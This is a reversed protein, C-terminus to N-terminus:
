RISFAVDAYGHARRMSFSFVRRMAEHDHLRIHLRKLVVPSGNLKAKFVKGYGGSAFCQSEVNDVGPLVLSAPLLGSSEYLKVLLRNM